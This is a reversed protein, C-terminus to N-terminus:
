NKNKNQVSTKMPPTDAIAVREIKIVRKTLSRVLGMVKPKCGVNKV